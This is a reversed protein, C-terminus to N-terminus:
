AAKIKCTRSGAVEQTFGAIETESLVKALDSLKVTIVAEAADEGVKERIYNLLDKVNVVEKGNACATLTVVGLDGTFVVPENTPADKAVLQLADKIEKVRKVKEPIGLSKFENDIQILEDAMVQEASKTQNVAKKVQKTPAPKQVQKIKVTM